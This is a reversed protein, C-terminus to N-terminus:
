SQQIQSHKPKMGETYGAHKDGVQPALPFKSKQAQQAKGGM